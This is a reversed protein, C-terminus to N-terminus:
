GSAAPMQDPPWFTADFAEEIVSDVPELTVVCAQSVEAHLTGHLRYRGDPAPTITYHASLAPCAVLDLARAVREREETSAERRETIGREPIDHVARDWELECATATRSTM